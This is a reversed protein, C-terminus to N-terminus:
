RKELLDELGLFGLPTEEVAPLEKSASSGPFGKIMFFAFLFREEQLEVPSFVSILSHALCLSSLRPGRGRTGQLGQHLSFGVQRQWCM